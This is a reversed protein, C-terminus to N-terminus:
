VRPISVFRSVCGTPKRSHRHISQLSHLFLFRPSCTSPEGNKEWVWLCSEFVVNKHASSDTRISFSNCFLKRKNKKNTQKKRRQKPPTPYETRQFRSSCTPSVHLTATTQPLSPHFFICKSLTEFMEITEYHLKKNETEKQAHQEKRNSDERVKKYEEKRRCQPRQQQLQYPSGYGMIMCM